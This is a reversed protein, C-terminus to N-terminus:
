VGTSTPPSAEGQADEEKVKYAEMEDAFTAVQRRFDKLALLLKANELSYDLDKGKYSVKEWGLLVTRAVVDIMIEDSKQDAMEDALDLVKRSREVEKTLLKAYKRNGSRAILLRAGSGLDFWTGNNELSEDTAYKAFIDLSM